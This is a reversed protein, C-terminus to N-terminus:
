IMGSILLILYFDCKLSLFLSIGWCSLLHSNDGAVFFPRKITIILHCMALVLSTMKSQKTFLVQHTHSRVPVLELETGQPLEACEAHTDSDLARGMCTLELLQILRKWDCQKAKQSNTRKTKRPSNQHFSVVHM